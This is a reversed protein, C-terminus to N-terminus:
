YFIRPSADADPPQITLLGVNQPGDRDEDNQQHYSCLNEELHQNVRCEFVQHM